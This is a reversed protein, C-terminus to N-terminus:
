SPKNTIIFGKYIDPHDAIYIKIYSKRESLPKNVIKIKFNRNNKDMEVSCWPASLNYMVYLDSEKEVGDKEEMVNFAFSQSESDDYIVYENPIEEFFFLSYIIESKKEGSINLGIEEKALSPLYINSKQFLLEEKNKKMRTKSVFDTDSINEYKVKINKSIKKDDCHCLTIIYYDDKEIFPRGYNRIIIDDDEKTLVFGDDFTMKEEDDDTVHYRYISRIRFKGSGGIAGVNITQEEYIGNYVGNKYQKQTVDNKLTILTKNTNICFKDAEQTFYLQVYISSDNAHTCTVYFEKEEQTLNPKIYVDLICRNRRIVIDSDDTEVDFSNNGNIGDCIITLNKHCGEKPITFNKGENCSITYLAM